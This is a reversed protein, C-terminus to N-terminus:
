FFRLKKHLFLSNSLFTFSFSRYIRHNILVVIIKESMSVFLNHCSSQRNVDLEQQKCARKDTFHMNTVKYQNSVNIKISFKQVFLSSMEFSLLIQLFELLLNVLVVLKLIFVYKEKSDNIWDLFHVPFTLYYCSSSNCM